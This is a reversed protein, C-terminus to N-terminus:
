KAVKACCKKSDHQTELGCGYVPTTHVSANGSVVLLRVAESGANDGEHGRSDTIGGAFALRGGRNYLLLQGSTKVGFRRAAKGDKDLFVQAGPIQNAERWLGSKAWAQTTGPPRVLVIRLAVRSGIRPLLRELEHLSASTCPCRPHVFFLLTPSDISRAIITDAPWSSPASAAAGPTGSYRSVIRLGEVIGTGWVVTATLSLLLRTNSTMSALQREHSNSHAQGSVVCWSQRTVHRFEDAFPQDFNM